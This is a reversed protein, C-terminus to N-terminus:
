RRFPLGVGGLHPHHRRSGRIDVALYPRLVIGLVGQDPDVERRAVKLREAGRFVGRGVARDEWIAYRRVVLVVEIKQIESALLDGLDIGLGAPDRCILRRGGVRAGHSRDVRM